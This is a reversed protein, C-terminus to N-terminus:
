PIEWEYSFKAVKLMLSTEVGLRRLIAACLEADAPSARTRAASAATPM